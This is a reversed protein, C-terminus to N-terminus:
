PKSGQHCMESLLIGSGAFSASLLLLYLSPKLQFNGKRLTLDVPLKLTVWSGPSVQRWFFDTPIVLGSCNESAWEFLHFCGSFISLRVDWLYHREKQKGWLFLTRHALTLCGAWCLGSDWILDCESAYELVTDCVSVRFLAHCVACSFRVSM